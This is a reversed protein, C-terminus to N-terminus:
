DGDCVGYVGEYDNTVESHNMILNELVVSTTPTNIVGLPATDVQNSPALIAFFSVITGLALLISFVKILNNFM